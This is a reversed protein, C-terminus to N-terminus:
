PDYESPFFSVGTKAMNKDYATNMATYDGKAEAALYEEFLDEDYKPEEPLTIEPESPRFEFYILAATAALLLVLIVILFKKM